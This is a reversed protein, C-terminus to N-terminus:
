SLVGGIETRFPTVCDPHKEDSRDSRSPKAVADPRCRCPWTDTWTPKNKWLRRLAGCRCAKAISRSIAPTQRRM